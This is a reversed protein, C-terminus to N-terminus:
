THNTQEFVQPQKLNENIHLKMCPIIFDGSKSLSHYFAVTEYITAPLIVEDEHWCWYCAPIMGKEFMRLYFHCYENWDSWSKVNYYVTHLLLRM